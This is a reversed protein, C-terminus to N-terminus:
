YLTTQNAEAACRFGTQSDPSTYSRNLGASFVGSMIGSNFSGGRYVPGAYPSAGQIKGINKNSNFSPNSPGFILRNIDPPFNTSYSPFYTSNTFEIDSGTLYPNTGLDNAEDSVWQFVNGAFDWVVEGNSLFLTRRQEWGASVTNGTGYYGDTDGPPHDLPSGSGSMGSILHQNDSHGRPMVGSGTANESWNAAVSEANRAVTQWQTNSILRAGGLGCARIANITTDTELGRNISVWPTTSYISTAATSANNNKAPYKMVCFDKATNLSWDTNTFSSSTHGLGSIDSGPVGVYGPPCEFAPRNVSVNSSISGSGNTSTVTVGFTQAAGARLHVVVLLSGSNSCTVSRVSGITPSITATHNTGASSDCTGTITAKLGIVPAPPTLSPPTPPVGGGTVGTSLYFSLANSQGTNGALDTQKVYVSKTGDGTTLTWSSFSFTGSLCTATQYPAVDGYLNVPVNNECTGALNPMTTSTVTVTTGSTPSTPSTITPTPAINDVTLTQSTAAPSLNGAADTVAGAAVSLVVTGDGSCSSLTVVYTNPPALNQSITKTCSATGTETNTIVISSENLALLSNTDSFSVSFSTSSSQRIHTISASSISVTPSTTDKVISTSTTVSQGGADQSSVIITFFGDSGTLSLTISFDNNATCITTQSSGAQSSGAQSSGAIASATVSKTAICTGTVTISDKVFSNMAPSSIALPNALAGSLTFSRSQNAAALINGAGDTASIGSFQVSVHGSSASCGSVTIQYSSLTNAIPSVSASCDATAGSLTITPPNTASIQSFTDVYSLVFTATKTMPDFSPQPLDFSPPIKDIRIIQSPAYSLTNTENKFRACVRVAINDGLLGAQASTPIIASYIGALQSDSCAITPNAALAFEPNPPIPGTFQVLPNSQSAEIANIFGNSADNALALLWSPLSVGAAPDEPMLVSTTDLYELLKSKLSIGLRQFMDTMQLQQEATMLAPDTRPLGVVKMIRDGQTSKMVLQHNKLPVSFAMVKAFRTSQTATATDTMLSATIDKVPCPLVDFTQGTSLDSLLVKSDTASFPLSSDIPLLSMHSTGIGAPLMDVSVNGDGSVVYDRVGSWTRVIAPTGTTCFNKFDDESNFDLQFLSLAIKLPAGEISDIELPNVTTKTRDLINENGQALIQGNGSIRYSFWRIARRFGFESRANIIEVTPMQSLEDSTLALLKPALIKEHDEKFEASIKVPVATGAQRQFSCALILSLSGLASLARIM